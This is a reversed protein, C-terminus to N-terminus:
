RRADVCRDGDWYRYTGCHGAPRALYPRDDYRRSYGYVGPGYARPARYAYPPSYAYADDYESAVPPGVYIGFSQASAGGSFTLAALTAAVAFSTKSIM